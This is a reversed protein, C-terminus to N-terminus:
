ATDADSAGKGTVVLGYQSDKPDTVFGVGTAAKGTGVHVLRLLGQNCRPCQTPTFRDRKEFFYRDHVRFGCENSCTVEYM